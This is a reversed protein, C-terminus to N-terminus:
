ELARTWGVIDRRARTVHADTAAVTANSEVGAVPRAVWEDRHIVFFFYGGDAMMITMAVVFLVGAARSAKRARPTPGRRLTWIILYIDTLFLFGAIGLIEDALTDRVAEPAVAELYALGALCLAALTSCVPLLRLAIDISFADADIGSPIIPPKQQSM